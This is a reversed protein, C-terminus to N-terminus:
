AREVGRIRLIQGTCREAGCCWRELLWLSVAMGIALMDDTLVMVVSLIAVRVHDGFWVEPGDCFLDESM